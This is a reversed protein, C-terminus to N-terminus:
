SCQQSYAFWGGGMKSGCHRYRFLLPAPHFCRWLGKWGQCNIIGHSHMWIGGHLSDFWLCGLFINHFSSIQSVNVWMPRLSDFITFLLSSQFWHWNLLFLFKCIHGLCTISSLWTIPKCSKLFIAAAKLILKILRASHCPVLISREKMLKMLCDNLSLSRDQLAVMKLIHGIFCDHLPFLSGPSNHLGSLPYMMKVWM